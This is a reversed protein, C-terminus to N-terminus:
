LDKVQEEGIVLFNNPWVIGGKDTEGRIALEGAMRRAEKFGEEYAWRIQELVYGNSGNKVGYSEILQELKTM